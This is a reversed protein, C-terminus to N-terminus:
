KDNKKFVINYALVYSFNKFLIRSKRVYDVDDLVYGDDLTIEQM